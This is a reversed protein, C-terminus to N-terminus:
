SSVDSKARMERHADDMQLANVMSPMLKALMMGAIADKPINLFEDVSGGLKELLEYTAQPLWKYSIDSGELRQFAEFISVDGKKAEWVSDALEMLYDWDPLDPVSAHYIKGWDEWTEIKDRDETQVCNALIYQEVDSFYASLADMQERYFLLGEQWYHYEVWGWYEGSGKECDEFPTDPRPREYSVDYFQRHVKGDPLEQEITFHEIPPQGIKSELEFLGLRTVDVISGNSLTVATITM